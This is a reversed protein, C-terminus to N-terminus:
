PKTNLAREFERLSHNNNKERLGLPSVCFIEYMAESTNGDPVGAYRTNKQTRRGPRRAFFHEIRTIEGRQPIRGCIIVSSCLYQRTAEGESAEPADVNPQM